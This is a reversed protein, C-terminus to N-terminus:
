RAQPGTSGDDLTITATILQFFTHTGHKADVLVEDLPVNFLRAEVSTIQAM